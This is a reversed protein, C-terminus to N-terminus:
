GAIIEVPLGTDSWNWLWEAFDEPLNVCGHSMQIAGTTTGTRVTCRTARTGRSTPTALTSRGTCMPSTTAPALWRRTPTIAADGPVVGHTDPLVTWARPSMSNASSRQATTPRCTSSRSTSSSGTVPTRPSGMSPRSRPRRWHLGGRCAPGRRARRPWAAARRDDHHAPRQEANRDPRIGAARERLVAGAHRRRHVGRLDACRAPKAAGDLPQSFREGGHPRHRARVACKASSLGPLPPPKPTFAINTM